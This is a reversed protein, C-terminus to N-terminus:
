SSHQLYKSSIFSDHKLLIRTTFVIFNVKLVPQDLAHSAGSPQDRALCHREPTPVNPLASLRWLCPHYGPVDRKPPGGRSIAQRCYLRSTHCTQTRNSTIDQLRFRIVAILSSFYLFSNFIHFLAFGLLRRFSYQIFVLHKLLM